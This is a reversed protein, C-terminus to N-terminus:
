DLFSLTKELVRYGAGGTVASSPDLADHWMGMLLGSSDTNKRPNLAGNRIGRLLGLSFSPNLM